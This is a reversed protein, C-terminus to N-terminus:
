EGGIYACNVNGNADRDIKYGLLQFGSTVEIEQTYVKGHEIWMIDVGNATMSYRDNDIIVKYPNDVQGIELGNIDFTFYKTITNLQSRLDNNVAALEENTETFKLTMEDSLLKLESEITQRFAEFDGSAVYAEAAQQIMDQCSQTISTNQESLQQTFDSSLGAESETVFDNITKKDVGFTFEDAAIELKYDGNKDVYYKVFRNQDGVSMQGSSDLYVGNTTNDVTSKVGSYIAGDDITFGGITAGFAVLDEVSIKEATITKAIIATGHLGNQLEEETVEASTTAGAEVNLKYYLGDEGKVVLKDAVVTGGEILDGKITVGVLEGTIAGNEVVLNEIIGSETFLKTIAAEGINSFDIAAYRIDASELNLTKAELDKITADVAVFNGSTLVKFDAYDGELNHINANTTNLNEVTAYKLDADTASLKHTELDTISAEQATLKENITVNDAEIKDVVAEQATLTEKITVNDSQLTDIRGVAADFVETSVKDAILIEVETIKSGIKEVTEIRAAPSSMNGTVIATHDKILVTVREDPQVEATASIPTLLDSGDIRVYKEGEYEVITGYVTSENKVEVEDKTVKVFQSILESSLNM